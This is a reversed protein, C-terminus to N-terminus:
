VRAIDRTLRAPECADTAVESTVGDIAKALACTTDRGRLEDAADRALGILDRLPTERVILLRDDM